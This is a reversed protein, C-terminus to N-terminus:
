LSYSYNTVMKLFPTFIISHLDKLRRIGKRRVDYTLTKIIYRIGFIHPEDTIMEIVM